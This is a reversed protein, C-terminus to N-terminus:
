PGIRVAEIAACLAAVDGIGEGLAAPVVHCVAATGPLAEERLSRRAPELV